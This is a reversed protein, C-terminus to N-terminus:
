RDDDSSSSLYSGMMMAAVAADEDDSSGCTEEAVAGRNSRPPRRAEEPNPRATALAAFAVDGLQARWYDDGYDLLIEAGFPVHATIVILQIPRTSVTAPQFTANPASAVGRYDNCFRLENGETSADLSLSELHTLDSQLAVVFGGEVAPPRVVGVQASINHDSKTRSATADAGLREHYGSTHSVM